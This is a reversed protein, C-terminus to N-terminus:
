DIGSKHRCAYVSPSTEFVMGLIGYGFNAIFMGGPPREVMILPMGKTLLEWSVKM